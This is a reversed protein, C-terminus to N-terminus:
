FPIDETDDKKVIVSYGNEDEIRKYGDPILYLPFKKGPLKDIEVGLTHGQWEKSDTGYADVLANITARNLSIKLPEDYGPFQVQLRHHGPPVEVEFRGDTGSEALPSADVAVAAGGLPDRTGKALVVGRLRVRRAVPPPASGEGAEAARAARADGPAAADAPAGGDLAGADSEVGPAGNADGADVASPAALSMAVAGVVVAVAAM